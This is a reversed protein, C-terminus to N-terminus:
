FSGAAISAGCLTRYHIASCGSFKRFHKASDGGGSVQPRTRRKRISYSTRCAGAFHYSYDKGLFLEWSMGLLHSGVRRIYDLVAHAGVLQSQIHEETEQGSKLELFVVHKGNEDLLIFDARKSAGSGEKFFTPGRYQRGNNEIKELLLPMFRDGKIVVLGDPVDIVTFDSGKQGTESFVLCNKGHSVVRVPEAFAKEDLFSRLQVDLLSM